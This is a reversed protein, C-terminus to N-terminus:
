RVTDKLETLVNGAESYEADRLSKFRAMAVGAREQAGKRRLVLALQYYAEALDPQLAIAKQLEAEAGAYNGSQLLLRGLHFHPLAYSPRIAEARAFEKQADATRTESLRLMGLFCHYFANEPQLRVARTLLDSAEDLRDKWLDISGLFFLARDFQPALRIAQKLLEVAKPENDLTLYSVAMSYLVEPLNPNLSAAKQLVQLAQEQEGYKQYFRGLQILLLPNEPDLESATKMEKLAPEREGARLHMQAALSHYEASRQAPEQIETLAARAGPLDNAALCAAALPLAIQVERPALRDAKSLETCAAAVLGHDLLLKGAVAHFGAERAFQGAASELVDLARRDQHEELDARMLNVALEQTLPGTRRAKEFFVAAEAPKKDELLLVGLNYLANAAGPNLDVARRLAAEAAPRDGSYLASIGLYFFGEAFRPRLRTTQEFCPRAERYNKQRLFDLGKHFQAEWGPTGASAADEGPSARCLCLVALFFVAALRM